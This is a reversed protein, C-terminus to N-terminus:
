ISNLFTVKEYGELFSSFTKFFIEKLTLGLEFVARTPGLPHPLLVIM